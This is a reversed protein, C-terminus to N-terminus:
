SSIVPGCIKDVPRITETGYALAGIAQAGGMLYIEDIGLTKACLAIAPDLLRGPGGPTCVVIEEVGALKAPIALMLLSSFLPATGAPVYLGVRKFPIARRYCTVGPMTQASQEVVCQTSHFATINEIAQDIAAGLAGSVKAAQSDREATSLRWTEPVAGDFKQAYEVLAADGRERVDRVIRAVKESLAQDKLTERQTYTVWESRPPNVVRKM